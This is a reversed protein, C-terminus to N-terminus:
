RGYASKGGLKFRDRRTQDAPVLGRSSTVSARYATAAAPQVRSDVYASFRDDNPVVRITTTGNAGVVRAQSMDATSRISNTAEREAGGAGGGGGGSGGMLKVGIAALAAITAAGAAINMPFPLSAIARAVAVVGHSTARVANQAVTFATEQGGMVMAQVSSVLQYIRWAQEAALLVKYGQSGEEFFGRAASLMDGYVQVQAAGRQVSVDRGQEEMAALDALYSRYETVTTLLDGMARGSQGFASTLGDATQRSISDVTRLEDALLQISTTFEPIRATLPTVVRATPEILNFDAMASILAEAEDLVQHALAVGGATNTDVLARAQRAANLRVLQAETLGMERRERQMSEIMSESQSILREYEREADTKQPSTARSARGPRDQQDVAFQARQNASSQRAANERAANDYGQQFRLAALERERERRAGPLVFPSELAKERARIDEAQSVYLWEGLKTIANSISRGLWDWANTIVGIQDAHGGAADAVADLVIKQAAAADGAKTAAEVQKIQEQTLLGFQRTMEVAAKAPDDMATALQRQAAPVDQGTFSAFDKTVALLQGLSERGVKGTNLYAAAMEQSARITMDAQEAGARTLQSLEEATLGATRGVGSVAREYGLASREGDLWLYGAAGILGGIVTLPLVLSGLAGVLGVIAPRMAQVAVHQGQLADSAVRQATTLRGSAGTLDRQAQSLKSADNAANTFVERDKKFATNLGDTARETRAATNALSELRTDAQAVEMSEVRIGLSALDTM